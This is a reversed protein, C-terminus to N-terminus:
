ISDRWVCEYGVYKKVWDYLMENFEYENTIEPVIHPWKQCARLTVINFILRQYKSFLATLYIKYSINTIYENTFYLFSTTWHFYLRGPYLLGYPGRFTCGWWEFRMTGYKEKCGLFPFRAYRHLQKPFWDVCQYLSDWDFDADGWDHSPM